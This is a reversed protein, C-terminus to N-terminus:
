SNLHCEHESLLTKTRLPQASLVWVKEKNKVSLKIKNSLKGINKSFSNIRKDNLLFRNFTNEKSEFEYLNILKYERM